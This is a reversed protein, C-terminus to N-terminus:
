KDMLKEYKFIKEVEAELDKSGAKYGLAILGKRIEEKTRRQAM